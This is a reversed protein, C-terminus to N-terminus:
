VHGVGDFKFFRLMKKACILPGEGSPDSPAGEMELLVLENRGPQMLPGPIYLTLQPGVAPWYWGLNFGNLFAVGKTFGPTALFSDPLHRGGGAVLGLLSADVDFHGRCHSDLCM